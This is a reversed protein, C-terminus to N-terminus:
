STMFIMPANVENVLSLVMFGALPRSTSGSRVWKALPSDFVMLTLFMDLSMMLSKMLLVLVIFATLTSPAHGFKFLRTPSISLNKYYYYKTHSYTKRPSAFTAM